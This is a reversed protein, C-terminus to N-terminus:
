GNLNEKYKLHDKISFRFVKRKDGIHILKGYHRYPFFPVKTVADNGNVVRTIGSLRDKLKKNRVFVKPKGFLITDAQLGHKYSVDEHMLEGLAAGQSFGLIIVKKNKVIALNVKPMIDDQVAKWKLGFGAHCFLWSGRYLKKWFMFNQLWDPKSVSGQFSVTISKDDEVIKYQTDKAGDTWSGSVSQIWKDIM